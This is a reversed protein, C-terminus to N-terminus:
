VAAVNINGYEDVSVIDRRERYILWMALWVVLWVGATLISLVLHLVHRVHRGRVVVAQYDSQSEVRRGGGQAVLNTVTRALTAKREDPSKVEGMVSTAPSSGAESM